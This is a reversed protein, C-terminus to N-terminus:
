KDQLLVLFLMYIRENSLQQAWMKVNRYTKMNGQGLRVRICEMALKMKNRTLFLNPCESELCIMEEALVMQEEHRMWGAKLWLVFVVFKGNYYSRVFWGLDGGQRVHVLKAWNGGQERGNVQDGSAKRHKLVVLLPPPNQRKTVYSSIICCISVSDSCLAPLVPGPCVALLRINASCM